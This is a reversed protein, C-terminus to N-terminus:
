AGRLGVAVRSGVTHGAANHIRDWRWDPAPSLTHPAIHQIIAPVAVALANEDGDHVKIAIGLRRAPLAICFVGRAGIKGIWPETARQHLALDLRDDGSTWWPNAAMASGIRHLRPDVRHDATAAALRSWVRAMASLSLWLTPVGCGDVALAPDCGTWTRAIQVIRRQLPHDPSRYDDTSWGRALCAGLMMAHKGSCDSHVALYPQGAALYADATPKYAPAQAGCCLAGDNLGFHALLARVSAVHGAQGSHSSTGLAIWRPPLDTPDGLAELSCWLQLPKAASRWTSFIDAGTSWSPTALGDKATDQGDFPIALASVAHSTEVLGGRLQLVNM